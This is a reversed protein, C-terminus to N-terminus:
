RAQPVELAPTADGDQNTQSVSRDDICLFHQPAHIRADRRPTAHHQHMATTAAMAPAKRTQTSSCIVNDGAPKAKPRKDGRNAEQRLRKQSIAIYEANLEIGTYDRALRRCAIATTGAGSFPDLVRCPVPEMDDGCSCDIKWGATRSAVGAVTNACHNGTGDAGTRKTLENPRERTVSEREVVREWPAGCAPCCGRESTSAKICRVPLETPFTAFHADSCPESAMRWVNRPTVTSVPMVLAAEYSHNAAM